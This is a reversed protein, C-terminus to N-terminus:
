PGPGDLLERVKRLLDSGDFPKEILEVGEELVGDHVVVSEAYGSVFLVRTGPFRSQIARAVEKGDMGPMVVDTVLLDPIRSSGSLKRLAEVGGAAAMVTYGGSELISLSIRRVAEDDEVLLITEAGRLSVTPRENIQAAEELGEAARPFFMRFATGTGPKSDCSIFGNSQKVIGYVTALGLGTGKGKEKTTFFPEFIREMTAQDMGIGTDIVSLCVYEGRPVEPHERPFDESISLNTTEISLVGGQPMADRSNVALNMVVQEIRGPDARIGWLDPARPARVQIDEGLLREIMEMMGAVLTGLDVIRPQLIQRRSFALLQATLTAARRTARKIETLDAHLPEGSAVQELGMESYGNIVTLLNNFDHAIGGALRGVAEMKQAEQLQEQLKRQDELAKKRETLDRVFAHIVGAGERSVVKASVEVPVESGDKRVEVSEFLSSGSKVMAEINRPIAKRSEENDLAALSSGVLEARSRGLMRCANENVDLITGQFDHILLADTINEVITQYRRESASLAAEAERQATIDRSIGVLGQVVGRADLVPIKTTTILRVSGSVVKPEEKDVITRRTAIIAREEELFRDAMEKPYFDHDTKGILNEPAGAGMVDAVVKNARIFRCSADKLFVGDPLNDILTLLQAREQEIRRELNARDTIDHFTALASEFSGDSALQPAATVQIRRTEGDMRRIDVEYTNTAGRARRGTEQRVKDYEEDGLFERLNKRILRGKATGFIREAAPNAFLVVEDPDVIVVGTALNEVLLRYQEENRQLAAEAEKRGATEKEETRLQNRLTLYLLLATVAVFAWGKYVEAEISVRQTVILIALARDSLLIWLGAVVAYVASVRIAVNALRRRM